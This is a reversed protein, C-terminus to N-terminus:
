SAADYDEQMKKLQADWWAKRDLERAKRKAETLTKGWGIREGGWSMLWYRGSDYLRILYQAEEGCCSCPVYYIWMIWVGHVWQLRRLRCDKALPIQKAKPLSM